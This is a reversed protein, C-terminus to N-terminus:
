VAEENTKLVVSEQNIVPLSGIGSNVLECLDPVALGKRYFEVFSECLQKNWADHAEKALRREEKKESALIAKQAEKIRKQEELLALRRVELEAKSMRSVSDKRKAM